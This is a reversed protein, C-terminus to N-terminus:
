KKKFLKYIQNTTKIITKTNHKRMKQFIDFFEKEIKELEKLDEEYFEASCLNELEELKEKNILDINPEYLFGSKGCLNENNRCHSVMNNISKIENFNKDYVKESFLRCSGLDLNTNHPIYFKCYSCSPEFAYLFSFFSFFLIYSIM